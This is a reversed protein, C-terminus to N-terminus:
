KTKRFNYPRAPQIAPNTPKLSNNEIKESTSVSQYYEASDPNNNYYFGKRRYTTYDIGNNKSPNSHYYNYVVEYDNSKYLDTFLEYGMYFNCSSDSSVNYNVFVISDKLGKSYHIEHSSPVKSNCSSFLLAIINISICKIM